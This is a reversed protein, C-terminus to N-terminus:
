MQSPCIRDACVSGSIEQGTIKFSGLTGFFADASEFNATKKRRKRFVAAHFLAPKDCRTISAAAILAVLFRSFPNLMLLDCESSYSPNSAKEGASIAPPLSVAWACAVRM